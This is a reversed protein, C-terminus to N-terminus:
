DFTTKLKWPVIDFGVKVGNRVKLVGHKGLWPWVKRRICVYCVTL